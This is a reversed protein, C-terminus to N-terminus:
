EAGQAHGGLAAGQKERHVIEATCTWEALPDCALALLSAEHGPALRGIARAPFVVQPTTRTWLDLLTARDFFGHREMFDAEAKSTENWRDAGLAVRAGAAHLARLQRRHLDRARLERVPRDANRGDGVVSTPIYVLGREGSAAIVAPDILYPADRGAAYGYGPLHAFGDVGSAVALAVDAGTGVHAVVRLGVAHAREVVARLVEPSLGRGSPRGTFGSTPPGLDADSDLLYVKVIDPGQALFAEWKADLDDLTDLVVYADDEACRSEHIRTRDEDSLARGVLRLAQWEYVGKPHTDDSTLGAHSYAVDMTEPGAFTPMMPAAWSRRDTLVLAYLVGEREFREAQGPGQWADSLMHTHADGFPPVVFRGSLDVTRTAALPGAVFVGAQAWVTDRPAFREGDWWHGGVYATPEAAPHIRPARGVARGQKERARIRETCTWDELPDCALSLLSAEFGPALAGIARDPFIDRPTTVAWAHLAAAPTLGGIDLAYAADDWAWLGYADAGFSIPVGAADLRRLLAAHGARLSDLASASPPTPAYRANVLALALTPTVPIGSGAWDALLADDVAYVGGDAAAPDGGIVSYGPAHAFADVGAEIGARLDAATEVHAVVRLGDAHARRVTERLVAPSIGLQADPDGTAWGESRNLIVKLVDTGQARVRPWVADLDAVTPALHYADGEVRRSARIEDGRPGWVDWPQLGLARAEFATALHSAATTIGAVAYRVDVTTPLGRVAALDSARVHPNRVYFVGRAVLLSDTARIGDPQYLAHLHADGFPPVVYEDGLAVVRTPAALPGTVFVGGDAWTTDRAVFREGDYWRGGVYATSPQASAAVALSLFLFLDRM